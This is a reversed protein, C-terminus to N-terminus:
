RHTSPADVSAVDEGSPEDGEAARPHLTEPSLEDLWAETDDRTALFGLLDSRWCEVEFDVYRDVRSLIRAQAHAPLEALVGWFAKGPGDGYAARYTEGKTCECGGLGLDHLTCLAMARTAQPDDKKVLYILEAEHEGALRDMDTRAEFEGEGDVPMGNLEALFARDITTVNARERRAKLLM